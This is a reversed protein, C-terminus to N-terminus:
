LASAKKRLYIRFKDSLDALDPMDKEAIVVEKALTRWLKHHGYWKTLKDQPFCIQGLKPSTFLSKLDNDKIPHGTEREPQQYTQIFWKKFDVFLYYNLDNLFHNLKPRCVVLVGQEELWARYKQVQRHTQYGLKQALRKNSVSKTRFARDSLTSFAMRMRQLERLLALVGNIKQPRVREAIWRARLSDLYEEFRDTTPKIHGHPNLKSM